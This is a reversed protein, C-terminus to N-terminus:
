GRAGSAGGVLRRQRHRRVRAKNGCGTMTCWQRRHNKTTDVFLWGCTSSACQRVLKYQASTLLAAASRAIPGLMQDLARAHIRWTWGFGDTTAIIQAGAMARELETNLAQLDATAPQAGASIASFIGYIAERLTYARELVAAAEEPARFAEQLLEVAQAHTLVNAQHGWAVLDAYSSLFEQALGGRLGGVTNAFDLCAQGGIFEFPNQHWARQSTLEM